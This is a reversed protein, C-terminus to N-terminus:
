LKFISFLIELPSWIDGIAQQYHALALFSGFNQKCLLLNPSIGMATCTALTIHQPNQRHALFHMSKHSPLASVQSGPQGLRQDPNIKIEKKAAQKTQARSQQKNGALQAAPGLRGEAYRVSSWCRRAEPLLYSPATQHTPAPHRKRFCLNLFQQLEQSKSYCMSLQSTQGGLSM